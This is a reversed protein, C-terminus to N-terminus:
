FKNTPCIIRDSSVMGSLKFCFSLCLVVSNIGINVTYNMYMVGGGPFSKQTHLDGSCPRIVRGKQIGDLEGYLGGFGGKAIKRLLDPPPM